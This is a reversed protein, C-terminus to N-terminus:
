DIQELASSIDRLKDPSCPSFVNPELLGLNRLSSGSVGCMVARDRQASQKSEPLSLYTDRQKEMLKNSAARAHARRRARANELVPPPSTLFYDPYGAFLRSIHLRIAANM